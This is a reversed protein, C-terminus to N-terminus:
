KKRIEHRVEMAIQTTSLLACFGLISAFVFNGADAFLLVGGLCVATVFLWLEIRRTM